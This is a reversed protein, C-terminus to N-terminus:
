KNNAEKHNREFSDLWSFTKNVIGDTVSPASKQVQSIQVSETYQTINQFVGTWMLVITAAAALTYHFITTQYFPVTKEKTQTQPLDKPRKDQLQKVEDVHKIMHIENMVREAIDEMNQVDPLATDCEAVAQLYLDLCHDCSYLHDEAKERCDVPLDNKVYLQWEKMTFHRM